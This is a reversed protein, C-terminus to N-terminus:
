FSIEVLKLTRLSVFYTIYTGYKNRGPLGRSSSEHYEPSFAIALTDGHRQVKVTFHKLNGSTSLRDERFQHLATDIAEVYRGRNETVEQWGYNDMPPLRTIDV